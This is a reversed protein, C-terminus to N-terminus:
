YWPIEPNVEASQVWWWFVEVGFGLGVIGSIGVVSGKLRVKEVAYRVGVKRKVREM